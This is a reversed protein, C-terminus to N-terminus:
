ASEGKPVISTSGGRRAAGRQQWSFMREIAVILLFSLGSIAILIVLTAFLETTRLSANYSLLLFGLGKSSAVFEAIVAGIVSVTLALKLGAFLSPIASPIKVFRYVYWPSADVSKMLNLQDRDTGELGSLTNILVPFFALLAIILVKPLLDTGFWLVFLPAIAVKPITQSAVLIPYIAAKLPAAFNMVIALLLGSGVGLAYGILLETLTVGAHTMLVDFNDVVSRAIDVPEPLIFRPVDFVVCCIQWIVVLAVLSAIPPLFKRLAARANM